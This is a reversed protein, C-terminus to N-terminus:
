ACACVSRRDPSHSEPDGSGVREEAEAFSMNLIQNAAPDLLNVMREIMVPRNM